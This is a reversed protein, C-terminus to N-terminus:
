ESCLYSHSFEEWVAFNCSFFFFDMRGSGELQQNLNWAGLNLAWEPFSVVKESSNVVQYFVLNRLVLKIYNRTEEYPIDEIFELTDGRYRTKLWGTIAKENANYSATALILQGSYKDWLHRLHAAGLSISTQPDYLDEPKEFRINFAEASKQAVKPILQMLGFADMHSRARPDFASEQRMISYIFEPSIGFRNASETVHEYYPKPFILQPNM